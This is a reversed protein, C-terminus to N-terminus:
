TPKSTPEAVPKPISKNTVPKATPKVVPKSTSTKTAKTQAKTPAKPRDGSRTTGAAPKSSLYNKAEGPLECDPSSTSAQALTCAFPIPAARGVAVPAAPAGTAATSTTITPQLAAIIAASMAQADAM